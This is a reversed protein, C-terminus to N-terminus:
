HKQFKEMVRFPFEPDTLRHSGMGREGAGLLKQEAKRKHIQRNHTNGTLPTVCWPIKESQGTEGLTVDELNVM